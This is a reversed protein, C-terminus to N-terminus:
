VVMMGMGRGMGLDLSLVLEVLPIRGVGEGNPWLTVRRILKQSSIRMSLGTMLLVRRRNLLERYTPIKITIYHM